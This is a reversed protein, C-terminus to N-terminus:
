VGPCSVGFGGRLGLHHVLAHSKSNNRGRRLRSENHVRARDDKKRSRNRLRQRIRFTNRQAHCHLSDGKHACTASRFFVLTQTSKSITESRSSTAPPRLAM